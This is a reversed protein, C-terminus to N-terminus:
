HLRVHVFSVVFVKLKLERREYFKTLLKYVVSLSTQIPNVSSPTSPCQFHTSPVGSTVAYSVRGPCHQSQKGCSLDTNIRMEIDGQGAPEPTFVLGVAKIPPVLVTHLEPATRCPSAVPIILGTVYIFM